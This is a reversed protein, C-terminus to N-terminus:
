ESITLTKRIKFCGNKFSYHFVLTCKVIDIKTFAQYKRIVKKVSIGKRTMQHTGPM